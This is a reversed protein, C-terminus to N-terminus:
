TFRACRKPGNCNLIMIMQRKWQKLLTLKKIIKHTSKTCKIWYEIDYNPIDFTAIIECEDSYLPAYIEVQTKHSEITEYMAKLPQYDERIEDMNM